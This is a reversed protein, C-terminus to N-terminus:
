EEAAGAFLIDIWGFLIRDLLHGPIDLIGSAQIAGKFKGTYIHCARIFRIFYFLAAGFEMGLLGAIFAMMIATDGDYYHYGLSAGASAGILAGMFAGGAAASTLYPSLRM